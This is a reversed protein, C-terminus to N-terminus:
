GKSYLPKSRDSAPPLWSGTYDAMHGDSNSKGGTWCTLQMYAGDSSRQEVPQKGFLVIPVENQADFIGVDLSRLRSGFFLYLLVQQFRM